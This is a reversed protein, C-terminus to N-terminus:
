RKECDGPALLGAIRDLMWAVFDRASKMSVTGHMIGRRRTLGVLRGNACLRKACAFTIPPVVTNDIMGQAIFVPMGTAHDVTRLKLHPATSRNGHDM